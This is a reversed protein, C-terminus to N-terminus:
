YDIIMVRFISASRQNGHVLNCPTVIWFVVILMKVVTMVESNKQRICKSYSDDSVFLHKILM